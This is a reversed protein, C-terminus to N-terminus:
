AMLHVPHAFVAADITQNVPREGTPGPRGETQLHLHQGLCCQLLDSRADVVLRQRDNRHARFDATRVLRVRLAAAM